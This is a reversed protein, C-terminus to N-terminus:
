CALGFRYGEALLLPILTRLAIATQPEQTHFSVLAGDRVGVLVNAVIQGAPIGMWDFSSVTQAVQRYGRGDVVALVRPNLDGNPARFCPRLTGGPVLARYQQETQDLEAAIAADSLRTLFPHSWTHNGVRHGAAVLARVAEPYTRMARGTLFFTGQVGYEDLIRQMLYRGGTVIGTGDDFLFYVTPAERVQVTLGLEEGDPRAAGVGVLAGTVPVDATGCIEGAALNPCLADLRAATGAAARYYRVEARGARLYASLRVRGDPLPLATAYVDLGDRMRRGVAGARVPESCGDERCAQLTFYYLGGDELPVGVPWTGGAGIAFCALANRLAYDAFVCLRVVTHPQPRWRLLALEPTWPELALVEPPAAPGVPHAGAVNGRGCWGLVLVLALLWVRGVGTGRM